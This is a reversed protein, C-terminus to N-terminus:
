RRRRCEAPMEAACGSRVQEAHTPVPRGARQGSRGSAADMRAAIRSCISPSRSPPTSRKTKSVGGGGTVFPVGTCALPGTAGSVDPGASGASEVAGTVPVPAALVGLSAPDTVGVDEDAAAAPDLEASGVFGASGAADPADPPAPPAPPAPALEDVPATPADSLEPAAPTVVAVPEVSVAPAACALEDVPADPVADLLADVFPDAAVAAVVAVAAVAAVPTASM